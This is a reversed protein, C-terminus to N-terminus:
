PQAAGGSKRDDMTRTNVDHSPRILKVMSSNEIRAVYHTPFEKAPEPVLSHTYDPRWAPETLARIMETVATPAGLILVLVVPVFVKRAKAREPDSCIAAAALALLALAPISGRMALDNSPGFVVLPLAFLVVGATVLLAEARVALLLLWLIGAELLVFQLYHPVYFLMSEHAGATTGSQITGASLVLYGAIPVAVITAAILAPWDVDSFRRQYGRRLWAVAALPLFGIATLPSWLPLLAVVIPL